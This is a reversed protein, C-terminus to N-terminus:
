EFTGGSLKGAPGGTDVAAHLEGLSIARIHDHPRGFSPRWTIRTADESKANTALAQSLKPTTSSISALDDRFAVDTALARVALDGRDRAPLRAAVGVCRDM